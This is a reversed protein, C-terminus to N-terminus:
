EFNTLNWYEAESILGRWLWENMVELLAQIAIERDVFTYAAQLATPYDSYEEGADLFDAMDPPYCQFVFGSAVSLIEIHWGHYKESHLSLGEEQLPSYPNWSFAQM